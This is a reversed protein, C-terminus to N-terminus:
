LETVEIAAQEEAYDAIKIPQFPKISHRPKNQNRARRKMAHKIAKSKAFEPDIGGNHSQYLLNSYDKKAADEKGSSRQKHSAARWRRFEVETYILTELRPEPHSPVLISFEVKVVKGSDDFCVVPEYHDIIVGCQYAISLEGNATPKAELVKVWQGNVQVNRPMLYVLPTFPNFTLGTAITSRFAIEVSKQDCERLWEKGPQDALMDLFILEQVVTEPSLGSATVVKQLTPIESELKQLFTSM